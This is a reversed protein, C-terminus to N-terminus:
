IEEEIPKFKVYEEERGANYLDFYTEYNFSKQYEKVVDEAEFSYDTLIDVVENLVDEMLWEYCESMLMREVENPLGRNYFHIYPNMYHGYGGLVIYTEEKSRDIYYIVNYRHTEFCILEATSQSNMLHYGAGIDELFCGDVLSTYVNKGDDFNLRGLRDFEFPVTNICEDNDLWKYQERKLKGNHFIIQTYDIAAM